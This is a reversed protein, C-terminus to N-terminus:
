RGSHDYPHTEHGNTNPGPEMPFSITVQFGRRGPSGIGFTAADGYLLRLRDRTNRLGIGGNDMATATDACGQGDDSVRLVLRGGNRKASVAIRVQGSVADPGHKIANEVLPQLLMGPVQVSRLEPPIDCDVRLRDRYRVAEIGLYNGIHEVESALPVKDRRTGDLTARLLHGLRALV